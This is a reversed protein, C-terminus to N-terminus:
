LDNVFILGTVRTLYFPKKPIYGPVFRRISALFDHFAARDHRYLLRLFMTCHAILVERDEVSLGCSEIRGNSATRLVLALWTTAADTLRYRASDDGWWPQDPFVRYLSLPASSPVFRFGGGATAVRVILDSDEYILMREDFGQVTELWDRRVLYAGLQIGSGPILLSAPLRGDISPTWVEEVPSLREEEGAVKQWSSYVVAIEESFNEAVAVQLELKEPALLDDSDLFQIWSGSTARWGRNRAASLGSNAQRM